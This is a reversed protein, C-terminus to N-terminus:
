LSDMQQEILVNDNIVACTKAISVNNNPTDGTDHEDEEPSASNNNINEGPPNWLGINTLIQELDHNAGEENGEEDDLMEVTEIM